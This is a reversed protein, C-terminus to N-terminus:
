QRSAYSELAQAASGIEPLSRCEERIETARERLHGDALALMIQRGSNSPSANQSTSQEPAQTGVHVTLSASAQQELGADQTPDAWACFIYMGRRLPEVNSALRWPGGTVDQDILRQDSEAGYNIPCGHGVASM